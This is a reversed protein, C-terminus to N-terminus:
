IRDHDGPSSFPGVVRPFPLEASKRGPQGFAPGHVLEQCCGPCQLLWIMAPLASTTAWIVMSNMVRHALAPILYRRATLPHVTPHVAKTYLQSLGPCPLLPQGYYRHTAIGNTSEGTVAEAKTLSVFLNHYM